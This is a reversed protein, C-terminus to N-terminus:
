SPPAEAKKPGSACRDTVSRPVTAVGVGAGQATHARRSTSPVTPVHGPRGRAADKGPLLLAM